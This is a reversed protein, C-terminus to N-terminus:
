RLNQVGLGRGKVMLGSGQVRFGQGEVTGRFQRSYPM